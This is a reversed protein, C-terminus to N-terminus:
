RTELAARTQALTRGTDRRIVRRTLAPHRLTWLSAGDPATERGLAQWGTALLEAVTADKLAAPDLGHCEIVRMADGDAHRVVVVCERALTQYDHAPMPERPRTPGPGRPPSGLPRPNTPQHPM